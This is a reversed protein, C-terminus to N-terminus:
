DLHAQFRAVGAVAVSRRSLEAAGIPDRLADPWSEVSASSSLTTSISFASTPVTRRRSLM